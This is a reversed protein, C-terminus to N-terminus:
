SCVAYTNKLLVQAFFASSLVSVGTTDHWRFMNTSARYSCSVNPKEHEQRHRKEM